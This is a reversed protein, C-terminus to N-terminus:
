KKSSKKKKKLTIPKKKPTSSESLEEDSGESDGGRAELYKAHAKNSYSRSPLGFLLDREMTFEIPKEGDQSIQRKESQVRKIKPNRKVLNQLRKEIRPVDWKKNNVLKVIEPADEEPNM